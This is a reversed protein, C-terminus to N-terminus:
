GRLLLVGVILFIISIIIGSLKRLVRINNYLGIIGFIFLIIGLFRAFIIFSTEIMWAFVNM